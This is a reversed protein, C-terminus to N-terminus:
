SRIFAGLNEGINEVKMVAWVLLFVAAITAIGLVVLIILSQWLAKVICYIASSCIKASSVARKALPQGAMESSSIVCKPLQGVKIYHNLYSNSCMM